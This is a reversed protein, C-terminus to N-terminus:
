KYCDDISYAGGAELGVYVGAKMAAVAVEIHAEWSVAVYVADLGELALLENHDTTTFPREAGSKEVTDAAREVRESVLDCVAIIDVGQDKMPMFLGEMMSYGRKGLGIIGIKVRYKM